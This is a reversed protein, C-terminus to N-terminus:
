GTPGESKPRDSASGEGATVPGRGNEAGDGLVRAMLSPRESALAEVSGYYGYGYRRYGDGYYAVGGRDRAPSYNNFVAGILPADVQALRERAHTVAGRSTIRADAVMLVGDVMPALTVADAVPLVPPCDLIVFDAVDRLDALLGGMQESQLLEGPGPPIPGSALLRLNEVEPDQLAEWPRIEGALANSLGPEASAGFFLHLRPKRLDASVLIVRKGADALAVALNAATTSKGEGANPSTVLITRLGRQTALFLVSTRLTRYSEAVTSRPEELAVLRVDQKRKWSRATPILALVPVGSHEELDLRGRLGDGLLEQLLAVVIGVVLGGFLGGALALSRHPSSPAAPLAANTVLTPPTIKATTIDVLQTSVVNLQNNVTTLQTQFAAASVNNKQGLAALLERQLAAQKSSLSDQASLLPARVQNVYAYAGAMRVQVYAEAFAQAGVQAGVPKTASYSISLLNTNTPNTAHVSGLMGTPVPTHALASATCLTGPNATPHKAILAACQAVTTSTVLAQETQMNPASAQSGGSQLMAIPNTALVTATASYIPTALVLYATALGLIVLTGILITWKRLRLVVLYERLDVTGALSQSYTSM